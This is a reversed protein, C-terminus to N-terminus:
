NSWSLDTSIICNKNYGRCRLQHWTADTQSIEDYDSLCRSIVDYRNKLIATM